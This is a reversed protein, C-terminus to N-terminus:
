VSKGAKEIVVSQKLFEPNTNKIAYQNAKRSLLDPVTDSHCEPNEKNESRFARVLEQYIVERTKKREAVGIWNKLRELHKQKKGMSKYIENHLPDSEMVNFLKEFRTRLILIDTEVKKILREVTTGHMSCYTDLDMGYISDYDFDNM